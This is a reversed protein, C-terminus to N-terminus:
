IYVFSVLLHMAKCLLITIHFREKAFVLLVCVEISKKWKCNKLSTLIKSVLKSCLKGWSEEEEQVVKEKVEYYYEAEMEEKSMWM